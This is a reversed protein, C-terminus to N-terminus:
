EGRLKRRIVKDLANKPLKDIFEIEKPIKYIALKDKCSNVIDEGSITGKFEDKLVIFAKVIQGFEPDDAKVGVVSVESVPAYEHIIEEVEGPFIPYGKYKIVDKKREVMDFYGDQDMYGLDESRIWRKGRIEAFAQRNRDANNWYCKMVQPGCLIIEGVEGVKVFEDKASDAIAVLTSPLPIGVSGTRETGGIPIGTAPCAETLGYGETIEAGTLEKWEDRLQQPIYDSGCACIKLSSLNSTGRRIETIMMRYFAPVGFLLSIKYKEIYKVMEKFNPRLIVILTQGMSLGGTMIMAQGYIHFFPLYSLLYKSKEFVDGSFAKVQAINAMINYHTLSVGKPNGTTGATYLISAVDERPDVEIQPYDNSDRKLLEEFYHIPEEKPIKAKPTKKLIVSVKKKFYPMFYLIDTLIIKDIGLTNIVPKTKKYLLDIMIISEAGSDKLQLEIERPSFLFSVATPIAGLKQLAYYAIIFQPCTPLYLAVIDNQKIGLDHLASAMKEIYHGLQAYSIKTGYFMVANKEAYKAIAEDLLQTVPVERTVIETPVKPPYHHIWPRTLYGMNEGPQHIEGDNEVISM